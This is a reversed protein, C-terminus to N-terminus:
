TDEKGARADRLAQISEPWGEPGDMWAFKELHDAVAKRLKANESRAEDRQQRVGAYMNDIQSILGGVDDLPHWDPAKDAYEKRYISLALANAEIHAKGLAAEANDLEAELERIKEESADAEREIEESITVDVIYRPLHECHSKRRASTTRPTPRLQGDWAEQATAELGCKHEIRVDENTADTTGIVFKPFTEFPTEILYRFRDGHPELRIVRKVDEEQEILKRLQELTQM